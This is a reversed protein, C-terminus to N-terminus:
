NTTGGGREHRQTYTGIDVRIIIMKCKINNKNMEEEEKRMKKTENTAILRVSFTFLEIGRNSMRFSIYSFGSTSMM